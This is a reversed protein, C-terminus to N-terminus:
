PRSENLLQSAVEYLRGDPSNVLEAYVLFPHAFKLIPEDPPLEWFREYITVTSQDQKEHAKKLKARTILASRNVPPVYLSLNDYKLNKTYHSAAYEGAWVAGLDSFDINVLEKGVSSHFTGLEIKSLCKSAYFMSWKDFLVETQLEDGYILGADTLIKMFKNASGISIGTAQAIDRISANILKPAMLLVSLFKLGTKEYLSNTPIDSIMKKPPGNHIMLIHHDKFNFFANGVTDLFYVHNDILREAMKPNVYETILIVEDSKTEDVCKKYLDIIKSLPYHQAWKKVVINVQLSKSFELKHCGQYRAKQLTVHGEFPSRHLAEIADEIIPLVKENNM